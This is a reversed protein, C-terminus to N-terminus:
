EQPPEPSHDRLNALSQYDVKEAFKVVDDRVRTLAVFDDPSQIPSEEDAQGNMLGLHTSNRLDVTFGGAQQISASFLQWVVSNEITATGVLPTSFWVNQLASNLVRVTLTGSEVGQGGVPPSVSMGRIAVDYLHISGGTQEAFELSTGAVHRLSVTGGDVFGCNAFMLSSLRGGYMVLGGQHPAWEEFRFTDTRSTRMAKASSEAIPRAPRGSTWSGLASTDVTSELYRNMTAVVDPATVIFSPLEDNAGRWDQPPESVQGKVTCIIFSVGDMLCNVFTVGDFDCKEFTTERFDCNVFVRHRFTVGSVRCSRWRLNANIVPEDTEAVRADQWDFVEGISATLRHPAREPGDVKSAAWEKLGRSFGDHVLELMTEGGDADTPVVIDSEELWALAFFYRRLEETVVALPPMGLMPGATVEDDDSEGAKELVADRLDKADIIQARPMALWGGRGAGVPAPDDVKLAFDSYVRGAPTLSDFGDRVRLTGLENALVKAALQRREQSVKYGGSELHDPMRTILSIVGEALTVDGELDKLYIESCRDLRLGVAQALAATFLDASEQADDMFQELTVWEEDPGQWLRNSLTITDGVRNRWLVYLLAQLHLLGVSTWATGGGARGWFDVIAAVAKDDVMPAASGDIRSGSTVIRKVVIPDSIRDLTFDQRKYPGVTLDNIRHGFETRLSIVIHVSYRKVVDEIWKRVENYFKPQHRILGEFQDLVIVAEEGYEAHLRGVFGPGPAVDTPLSHGAEFRTSIFDEVAEFGTLGDRTGASAWNRCVLILFNDGELQPVIGLNLMSSKGVGSEGSLVVLSTDRVLDSFRQAQDDRGILQKDWRSDRMPRPGPWFCQDEAARIAAQWREFPDPISTM